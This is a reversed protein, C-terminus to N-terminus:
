FTPIHFVIPQTVSLCLLLEFYFPLFTRGVLSIIKCFMMGWTMMFGFTIIINKPTKLGCLMYQPEIIEMNIKPKEKHRCYYPMMTLRTMVIRFLQVSSENKKWWVHLPTNSYSIRGNDYLEVSSEVYTCVSVFLGTCCHHDNSM